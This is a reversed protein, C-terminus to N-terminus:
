GRHEAVVALLALQRRATEALLSFRGSVQLADATLQDLSLADRAVDYRHQAVTTDISQQPQQLQQALVARFDATPLYSVAPNNYLAVQTAITEHEARSVAMATAVSSLENWAM